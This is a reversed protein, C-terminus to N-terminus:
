PAPQPLQFPKFLLCQLISLLRCNGTSSLYAKWVVLRHALHGCHQPPSIYIERTPPLLQLAQLTVSATLQFWSAAEATHSGQTGSSMKDAVEAWINFVRWFLFFFFPTWNPASISFWGQKYAKEVNETLTTTFVTETRLSTLRSSSTTTLWKLGQSGPSRLGSYVPAIHFTSRMLILATLAKPGSTQDPTVAHTLWPM